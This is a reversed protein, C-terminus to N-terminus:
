VPAHCGAFLCKVGPFLWGRRNELNFILIRSVAGFALHISDGWLNDGSKTPQVSARIQTNLVRFFVAVCEVNSLM